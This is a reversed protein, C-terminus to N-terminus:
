FCIIGYREDNGDMNIERHTGCWYALVVSSRSLRSGSSGYKEGFIEINKYKHCSDSVSFLDVNSFTQLAQRLHEVKHETLQM